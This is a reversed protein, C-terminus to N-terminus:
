QVMFPKLRGGTQGDNMYSLDLTFLISKPPREIRRSATEQEASLKLNQLVSGREMGTRNATHQMVRSAPRAPQLPARLFLWGVFFLM